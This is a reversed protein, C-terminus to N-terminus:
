QIASRTVRIHLSRQSDVWATLEEEMDPVQPKRGGGTLRLRKSPLEKLKDKTKEM